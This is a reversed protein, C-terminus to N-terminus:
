QYIAKGYARAGTWTQPAFRKIYEIYQDADAASGFWVCNQDASYFGYVISVAPWKSYDGEPPQTRVISPYTTGRVGYYGSAPEGVFNDLNHVGFVDGNSPDVTPISNLAPGSLLETVYRVSIRDDRRLGWLQWAAPYFTVAGKEISIEGASDSSISTVLQVTIPEPTFFSFVRNQSEVLASSLAGSAATVSSGFGNTLTLTAVDALTGGEVIWSDGSKYVDTILYGSNIETYRNGSYTQERNLEASLYPITQRLAFGDGSPEWKARTFNLRLTRGLLDM